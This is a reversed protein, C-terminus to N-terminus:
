RDELAAYPSAASKEAAARARRGKSILDAVKTPRLVSEHGFHGNERRFEDAWAGDVALKLDEHSYGEGRRAAYMSAIRRRAQTGARLVDMGTVSHHHGMWEGFEPIEPSPKEPSSSRQGEERNVSGGSVAPPSGVSGAPVERLRTPNVRYSTPRGELAESEIWGAADLRPWIREFSRSKVAGRLAREWDKASRCVWGGEARQGAYYLQQLVIADVLGLERALSPLVILPPEPVLLGSV